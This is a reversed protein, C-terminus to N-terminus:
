FRIYNGAVIQYSDMGPEKVLPVAITLLINKGFSSKLNGLRLGAGVDAYTKSWGVGGPKRVAGADFFAVFGWQVVGWLRKSTFIRDEASVQWKRDGIRLHNTYGRLGDTGGIYILNEFDLKSGIFAEISAALTHNKFSTNYFDIKFNFMSNKCSGKERRTEAKLETLILWDDAPAFGKKIDADFYLANTEGGFNKSFAGIHFDMEFGLNYDEYSATTIINQYTEFKDEYYGFYLMIGRFRHNEIFPKSMINPRVDFPNDYNDQLSWLEIGSRFAYNEKVVFAKQFYIKVEDKVSPVIYALHSDNYLDVNIKERSGKVGMAWPTKLQYFPLEIRLEKLFGDSLKQYDLYLQWRSGFLSPDIYEIQGINREPNKEYGLTLTKGFGLLNVEKARIRSTSEGGATGFKLGGKLSWADHVWVNACLDGNEDILPTIEADRIWEQDRLLRESEYIGRADAVDGEKFLLLNRIVSEKTTIHIFNAIKGIFNNEDKKSLDFVNDVKIVIKKIIAKKNEFNKWEPKEQGFLSFCYFLLLYVFFRRKM